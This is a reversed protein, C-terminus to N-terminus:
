TNQPRGINQVHIPRRCRCFLNTVVQEERRRVVSLHLHGSKKFRKSNMWLWCQFLQSPPLMNWFLSSFFFLDRSCAGSSSLAKQSAAGKYNFASVGCVCELISIQHLLIHARSSTATIVFHRYFSHSSRRNCLRKQNRRFIPFIQHVRRRWVVTRIKWSLVFTHSRALVARRRM